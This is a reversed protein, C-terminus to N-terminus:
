MRANKACFRSSMWAPVALGVLLLEMPRFGLDQGGGHEAADLTVHHGSGAEADFRMGTELIARATMVEAM